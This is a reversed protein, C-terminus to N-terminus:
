YYHEREIPASTYDGLWKYGWPNAQEWLSFAKSAKDHADRAAELAAPDFDAPVVNDRNIYVTRGDIRTTVARGYATTGVWGAEFVTGVPLKRGRVVRVRAGRVVTEQATELTRVANYADHVKAREAIHATRHAAVLAAVEPTADPTAVDNWRVDVVTPRDNDWVEVTYQNAWVDSMVRVTSKVTATLTRGVFLSEGERTVIPM